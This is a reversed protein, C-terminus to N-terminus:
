EHASTAAPSGGVLVLAAGLFAALAPLVAIRPELAALSLDGFTFLALSALRRM